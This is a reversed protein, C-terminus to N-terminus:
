RREGEAYINLVNAVHQAIALDTYTAVYYKGGRPGIKYVTGSEDHIGYPEVVYPGTPQDDAPPEASHNAM